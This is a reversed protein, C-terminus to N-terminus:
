LVLTDILFCLKSKRSALIVKTPYNIGNQFTLPAIAFGAERGFLARSM